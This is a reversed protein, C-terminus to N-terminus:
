EGARARGKRRAQSFDFEAPQPTASNLPQTDGALEQERRLLATMRQVEAAQQPDAALDRMELPDAKLDFLQTRNIQPYGILKWRDERVARQVKAFATLIAERPTGVNGALGPALSRGESEEPAPLGALAGLTPFIDALYCLAASQRGPPIGPGALVLPARMSHEYLNQKGFLGHSGIALGHDSAFVVITKEGQGSAKLAALLRAIQADMFEICAFYDALHQRVIEPSRPWPVLAEDRVTMEGNNFPHVPLFNGPAPPERGDFRTRCEKPAIRSDHQGNFAMSCLFPSGGKQEQLFEVAADAFVQVSHERSARQNEFM